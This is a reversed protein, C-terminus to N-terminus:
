GPISGGIGLLLMYFLIFFSIVLFLFVKGFNLKQMKGSSDLFFYPNLFSLLFYTTLFPAFMIISLTVPAFIGGLSGFNGIVLKSMDEKAVIILTSLILGCFNWFRRV